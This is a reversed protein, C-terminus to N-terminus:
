IADRNNFLHNLQTVRRRAPEGEAILLETLSGFLHTALAEDNKEVMAKFFQVKEFPLNVGLLQALHKSLTRGLPYTRDAIRIQTHETVGKQLLEQAITELAPIGIGPKRSMLAFEPEQVPGCKPIHVFKKTVYGAVYQIAHLSCDYGVHCMGLRKDSNGEETWFHEFFQANAMEPPIGYLIAHYHPRHSKEGYEGAIYYRLKYHGEHTSLYKRLRKLFLQVDRKILHNPLHENDYTLTLFCSSKHMLSELMLRATWMRRRNIRCFLCQGCPFPIGRHVSLMSISGDKYMKFVQGSPDRVFPDKCMM